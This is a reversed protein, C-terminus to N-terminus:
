NSISSTNACESYKTSKENKSEVPLSGNKLMKENLRINSPLYCMIKRKVETTTEATKSSMSSKRRKSGTQARKAPKAQEAPKQTSKEENSTEFNSSTLGVLTELLQKQGASSTASEDDIKGLLLELLAASQCDKLDEGNNGNTLDSNSVDSNKVKASNDEWFISCQVGAKNILFNWKPPKDQETDIKDFHSWFAMPLRYALELMRMSDIQNETM